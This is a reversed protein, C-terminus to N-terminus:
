PFKVQCSHVHVRIYRKKYSVCRRSSNPKIPAVSGPAVSLNKWPSEIAAADSNRSSLVRRARAHVRSVENPFNKDSLQDRSSTLINPPFIIRECLRYVTSPARTFFARVPTFAAREARWEEGAVMEEEQEGGELSLYPAKHCATELTLTPGVLKRLSFFINLRAM